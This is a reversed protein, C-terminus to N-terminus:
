AGPSRFRTRWQSCDLLWSSMLLPCTHCRCAEVEVRLGHRASLTRRPLRMSRRRLHMRWRRITGMRPLLAAIRPLRIVLIPPAMAQCPRRVFRSLRPGSPLGARPSSPVPPRAPPTPVARTLAVLAERVMCMMVPLRVGTHILRFATTMPCTLRQGPASRVRHHRGMTTALRDRSSPIM